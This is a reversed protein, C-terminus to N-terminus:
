LVTAKNITVPEVPADAKDERTEGESIEKVLELGEVVAGYVVYRGDFSHMPTSTMYFQSGSSDAAGGKKAAALVGESHVLGTKEEPITYEPGGLGWQTVDDERSNPDGGQIFQGRQIRHFRIGDYYGEEVLKIMNKAHQPAKEMYLAVVIKGATTDFEIRPSDAPPDENSYLRKNADMWAREKELQTQLHGLLTAEGGDPGVPLSVKSLLAPTNANAQSLATEADMYDRDSALALARNIHAIAAVKPNEIETVAASFGAAPEDSRGAEYIRQWDARENEVAVNNSRTMWVIVVAVAAILGLGIWKYQDVFDAFASREEQAVTIETAAKHKAM